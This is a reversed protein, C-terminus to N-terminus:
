VFCLVTIKLFLVLLTSVQGTEHHMELFRKRAFNPGSAQGCLNALLPCKMHLIGSWCDGFVECSTTPGLM